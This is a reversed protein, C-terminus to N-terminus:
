CDFVPRREAGSCDREFSFASAWFPEFGLLREKQLSGFGSLGKVVWSTRCACCIGGFSGMAEVVVAGSGCELAEGYTLFIGLSPLDGQLYM